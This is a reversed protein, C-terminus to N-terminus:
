PGPRAEPAATSRPPIPPPALAVNGNLCAAFLPTWGNKNARDVEAGNELLLRAADVHGMMCATLLPTWGETDARDVEAGKELLGRWTSTTRLAPSTCRRRATRIRRILTRAKKELLLRAM